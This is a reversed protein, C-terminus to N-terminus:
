FYGSSLLCSYFYQIPTDNRFYKNVSNRLFVKEKLTSLGSQNYKGCVTVSSDKQRSLVRVDSNGVFPFGVFDCTFLIVNGGTTRDATLFFFPFLGHLLLGRCCRTSFKNRVLTAWASFEILVMAAPLFM